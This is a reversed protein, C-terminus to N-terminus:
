ARASRLLRVPLGASCTVQQREGAMGGRRCALAKSADDVHAPLAQGDDALNRGRGVSNTFFTKVCGTAHVGVRQSRTEQCAWFVHCDNVLLDIRWRLRHESGSCCGGGWWARRGVCWTGIGAAAFAEQTLGFHEAAGADGSGM